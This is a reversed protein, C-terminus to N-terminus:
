SHCTLLIYTVYLSDNLSCLIYTKVNLGSCVFSVKRTAQAPLGQSVSQSHSQSCSSPVYVIAAIFSVLNM